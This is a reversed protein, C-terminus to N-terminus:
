LVKYAALLSMTDVALLQQKLDHLQVKSMEHTIIVVRATQGDTSTQVIRSFSAGIQTMIQTFKLMQGPVDLMNLSLYYPYIVNNLDVKGVKSQYNNFSNGTTGLVINKTVSVIDSLVSNATPLGGAGRGYFLTEGVAQGTVMVANNENNITALPHDKPVLVPGVEAFVGDDIRRSIGLLKITYGFADAQQVDSQQITSIGEVSMNALKLHTGYSFQSLIIMKYAADIGEVDNTPDSEAFGLEQAKALALDYSWNKRQMQTLIYNTTGNVIGKVETIYDAAFSTVITRLIPIGGAVSAEYMLDCHNHKAIAALEEGASAILDKNATVVHKKANLLKTIVEKAPHVGGMVEVAIKIEPDNIIANLDTTVTVGAPVQNQHKAVDRIVVTKVSLSRGTINQVKDSNETIMKLVSSGVTGLGVLGIKIKDM